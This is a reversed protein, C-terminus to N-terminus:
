FNFKITGGYRAASPGGLFDFGTANNTGFATRDPDVKSSAPTNVARYWMNNGVLSISASEIFTGRFISKPLNYSVSVERLRLRTGDYIGRDDAGGGISTNNFFVGSAPQPINNPEGTEELVGPLIVTITPNFDELEKAVGRGIPTGASYSFIDGGKVFDLQASLTLGYVTLDSFGSLMFDPNPDGIIGIESSIKWDGNSNVLM